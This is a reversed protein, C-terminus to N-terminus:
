AADVQEAPDLIGLLHHPVEAQEQRSPKASGIDLGRYVQVADVSIIEGSFRKALTISLSTKGVATPGTIIVNPQM